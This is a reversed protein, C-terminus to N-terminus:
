QRGLASRAGSRADSGPSTAPSCWRPGSGAAQAVARPHPRRRVVGKSGSPTRSRPARVAQGGPAQTRGRRDAPGRIRRACCGGARGSRQRRYLDSRDSPAPGPASHARSSSPPRIAAGQPRARARPSTTSSPRRWGSFGNPRRTRTSTSGGTPCTARPLNSRTAARRGATGWWGCTEATRSAAQAWDGLLDDVVPLREAPTTGRSLLYYDSRHRQDRQDRCRHRRIRHAVPVPTWRREARPSCRSAWRPCGSTPPGTGPDTGCCWGPTNSHRLVSTAHCSATTPATSSGSTMASRRRCRRDDDVTLITPKTM